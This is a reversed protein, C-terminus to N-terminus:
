SQEDKEECLPRRGLQVRAIPNHSLCVRLPLEHAATGDHHLKTNAAASDARQAM